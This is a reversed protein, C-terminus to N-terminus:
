HIESNISLYAFNLINEWHWSIAVVLCAEHIGPHRLRSDPEVPWCLIRTQGILKMDKAELWRNGLTSFELGMMVLSHIVHDSLHAFRLKSILSQPCNSSAMAKFLQSSLSTVRVALLHHFRTCAHLSDRYGCQQQGDKARSPYSSQVYVLVEALM